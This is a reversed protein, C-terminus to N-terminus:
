RVLNRGCGRGAENVRVTTGALKRRLLISGQPEVEKGERPSALTPPDHLGAFFIM